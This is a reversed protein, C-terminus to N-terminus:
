LALRSNWFALACFPLTLSTEKERGAEGTGSSDVGLSAPLTPAREGEGPAESSPHRNQLSRLSSVLALSWLLYESLTPLGESGKAM